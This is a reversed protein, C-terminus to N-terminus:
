STSCPFTFCSRFGQNEESLLVTSLASRFACLTLPSPSFHCSSMFCSCKVVPQQRWYSQHVARQVTSVCITYTWWCGMNKNPLQSSHLVCPLLLQIYQWRLHRLTDQLETWYKVWLVRPLEQVTWLHTLSLSEPSLLTKLLIHGNTQGWNM